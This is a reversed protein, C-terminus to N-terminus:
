GTEQLAETLRLHKKTDDLREAVREAISLAKWALFLHILAFILFYPAGQVTKLTFYCVFFAFISAGVRATWKARRQSRRQRKIVDILVPVPPADENSICTACM